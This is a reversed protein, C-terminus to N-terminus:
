KESQAINKNTYEAYRAIQELLSLDQTDDDQLKLWEDFDTSALEVLEYATM